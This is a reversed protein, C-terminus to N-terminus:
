NTFLISKDLKVLCSFSCLSFIKMYVFCVRIFYHMFKTLFFFKFLFYSASNGTPRYNRFIFVLCSFAQLISALM